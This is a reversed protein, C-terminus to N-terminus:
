ELVIEAGTCDEVTHATVCLVEWRTWSSRVSSHRCSQAACLVEWKKALGVKSELVAIVADHGHDLIEVFRCKKELARLIEDALFIAVAKGSGQRRSKAPAEQTDYERLIM